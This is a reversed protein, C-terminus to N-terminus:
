RTRADTEPAAPRLGDLRAALTLFEQPTLTEARRTPTIGASELLRLPDVGLGALSSRLMKRRRGFAARTVEELRHILPPPPRHARPTLAVLASSVKPPPHFAAAPLRMVRRAETLLRTLVSLRGYAAGGPEAVLRDAVESQFMLHMAEIAELEHLWRLLLETGVNYPLNAVIRCRRGGTAEAVSLRLADAEILHLRGPYHGALEALAAQCRRDREIAVVEAGAELLARTLGGPGPGVELVLHGELPAALRVIRGLIGPDLLFHQGLRKEAALGHRRILAQPTPAAM